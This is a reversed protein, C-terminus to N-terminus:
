HVLQVGLTFMVTNKTPTESENTTNFTSLGTVGASFYMHEALKVRSYAVNLGTTWYGSHDFVQNNHWLTSVVDVHKGTYTFRFRNVWDRHSPEYVLNGFLSMHEVAVKPNLRVTTILISVLDSGQDAFGIAQELFSGVYPTFTIKKSIKFNKFVSVLSFNYFTYHDYLDIGKFILLGWKKREYTFNVDFTPNDSGLQGGYTFIGKTHLRTTLRWRSSSEKKKSKISDSEDTLWTANASPYIFLWLVFGLLIKNSTKM